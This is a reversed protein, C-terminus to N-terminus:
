DTLDTPTVVGNIIEIRYYKGNTTDKLILGKYAAPSDDDNKGIYNTNDVKPRIDGTNELLGDSALIYQLAIVMKELLLDIDPVQKDLPAQLKIAKGITMGYCENPDPAMFADCTMLAWIILGAIIWGIITKM